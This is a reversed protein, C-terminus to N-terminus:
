DRIGGAGREDVPIGLAGDESGLGSLEDVKEVEGEM